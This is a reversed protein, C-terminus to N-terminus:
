ITQCSQRWRELVVDRFPDSSPMPYGHYVGEGERQAEMPYGDPTVAWVNQPWAGANWHQDVLGRKMGDRLLSLAVAVTVINADDCLSKGRRPASPPTLGFDGPNQKHEPNGGYKVRSAMLRLAEQEVASLPDERMKRKPNFTTRTHM